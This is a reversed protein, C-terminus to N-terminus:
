GRPPWDQGHDRGAGPETPQGVVADGVFVSEVPDRETKRNAAARTPPTPPARTHFRRRPSYQRGLRATGPSSQDVKPM